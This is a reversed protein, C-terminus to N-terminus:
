ILMTNLRPHYQKTDNWTSTAVNIWYVLHLASKSSNYFKMFDHLFRLFLTKWYCYCLSFAFRELIHIEKPKLAWHQFWFSPDLILSPFLFYGIFPGFARRKRVRMKRLLQLQLKISSAGCNSHINWRITKNLVTRYTFICLQGCSLGKNWAPLVALSDGKQCKPPKIVPVLHKVLLSKITHCSAQM